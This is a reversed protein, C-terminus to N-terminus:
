GPDEKKRYRRVSRRYRTPTTMSYQKFKQSFYSQSSFGCKQAVESISCNDDRLFERAMLVRYWMLYEAPTRGFAATFLKHFYTPHLHSDKALKQLDVNEEIHEQLYKRAALLAQQHRRSNGEYSHAAAYQPKLLLRLISNAYNWIELKGDLTNRTDVKGMKNFLELIQDMEPHYAYPPLANLVEALQPDETSIFFVYCSFPGQYKRRQMPKCCTFYGKASPYHVGEIVPGGEWDKLFFRLEYCAAWTERAESPPIEHTRPDLHIGYTNIREISYQPFQM